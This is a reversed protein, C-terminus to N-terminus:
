PLIQVSLVMKGEKERLEMKKELMRLWADRIKIMIMDRLLQQMILLHMKHLEARGEVIDAGLRTM